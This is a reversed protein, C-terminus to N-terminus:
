IDCVTVFADVTPRTGPPPPTVSVTYGQELLMEVQCLLDAMRGHSFSEMGLFEAKRRAGAQSWRLVFRDSM